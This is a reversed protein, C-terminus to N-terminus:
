LDKSDLYAHYAREAADVAADEAKAIATRIAPRAAIGREPAGHENIFAIEANCVSKGKKSRKRDGQPYINIYRGTIGVYKTTRIKRDKGISKASIGMSYPGNWQRQIEAQQAEVIVDAGADLMDDIVDDPLSALSAFGDILPGLGDVIFRGM